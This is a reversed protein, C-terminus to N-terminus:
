SHQPKSRPQLRPSNGYASSINLNELGDVSNVSYTYRPINSVVRLLHFILFIQVSKVLFHSVGLNRPCSDFVLIWVDIAGSLKYKYELQATFNKLKM